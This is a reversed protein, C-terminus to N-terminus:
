VPSYVAGDEYHEVAPETSRKPKEEARVILVPCPARQILAQLSSGSPLSALHNDERNGVVIIDAHLQKAVRSVAEHPSGAEVRIDLTVSPLSATILSRLWPYTWSVLWRQEELLQAFEGSSFVLQRPLAAVVYVVTLQGGNGLALSAAQRLAQQSPKSLTEPQEPESEVLCVIASFPPPLNGDLASADSRAYRGNSIYKLYGARELAGFAAACTAADTAWMRQAETETLRLGPGAVYEARIREILETVSMGPVRAHVSGVQRRAETAFSVHAM